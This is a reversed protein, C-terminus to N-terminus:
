KGGRENKGARARIMKLIDPQKKGTKDPDSKIQQLLNQLRESKVLRMDYAAQLREQIADLMHREQQSMLFGMADLDSLTRNLDNLTGEIETATYQYDILHIM